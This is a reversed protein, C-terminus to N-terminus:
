SSRFPFHTSLPQFACATRFTQVNPWSDCRGVIQQKVTASFSKSQCKSRALSVFFASGCLSVNLDIPFLHVFITFSIIRPGIFQDALSHPLLLLFLCLFIFLFLLFLLHFFSDTNFRCLNTLAHLSRKQWIFPLSPLQCAISSRTWLPGLNTENM